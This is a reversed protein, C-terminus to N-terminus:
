WIGPFLRWTRRRYSEYGPLSSALLGEEVEIRQRYALALLTAAGLVGLGRRSSMAFGTWTAISGLYGPHRILRYPGADVIVQDDAIRLTRSYAHGLTRMSWRRVLLGTAELGLGAMAALRPLRPGPLRRALPVLLGAGVYAAAVMRTTGNDEDTADLTSAAGPKRATAELMLVGALGACGALFWRDMVSAWAM